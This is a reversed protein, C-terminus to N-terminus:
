NAREVVIDAPVTVPPGVETVGVPVGSVGKCAEVVAPHVLLDASATAAGPQGLTAVIPQAVPVVIGDVNCAVTLVKRISAHQEPTLNGCASLDVLVSLAFNRRM